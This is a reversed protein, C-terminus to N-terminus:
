REASRGAPERASEREAEADREHRQTGAAAVPLYVTLQTGAGVASRVDIWGGHAQVIAHTIFLGLGLGATDVRGGRHYRRFLNAQEEPPIGEGRDQVRIWATADESGAEVTVPKEAGYKVANSVLNLIVQEIREHDWHGAIARPPIRVEIPTAGHRALDELTGKMDSLIDRLDSAGREIPLAGASIRTADLLSDILSGLKRSRELITVASRRLQDPAIPRGSQILRELLGAQLHLAALPTKLEHSAVSLFEDRLQVAEQTREFLRANEIALAARGAIEELLERDREDFPNGPALRAITLYGIGRGELLIPSALLAHVRDNQLLHHYEPPLMRENDARSLVPLLLSRGTFLFQVEPTTSLRVDRDALLRRMFEEASPSSVYMAALRLRDGDDELMRLVSVDGLLTSVTQTITQLLEPTSRAHEAFARTAQALAELRRAARRESEVLRVRHAADAAILSLETLLQRMKNSFPHFDAFSIALSGFAENEHRLPFAVTSGFAANWDRYPRVSDPTELWLTRNERIAQPVPLPYDLPMNRFRQFAEGSVGTATVINVDSTQKAHLAFVSAACGLQRVVEGTLAEGLEELTTAAAAEATIAQLIGIARSEEAKEEYLRARDLAQAGLSAVSELFERLSERFEQPRFFCFGLVGLLRTGAILPLAVSAASNQYPRYTPHAAYAEVWLAKRLFGAQTLTYPDTLAFEGAMSAAPGTPGRTSVVRLARTDENLTAVTTVDAGIVPLTVRTITDAVEEVTVAAALQAALGALSASREQLQKSATIDEAAVVFGVIEDGSRYPTYRVRLRVPKGAPSTFDIEQDLTEGALAREWFPSFTAVNEPGLVESVHRGVIEERTRGYWAAYSASAHLFTFDRSVYSILLPITDLLGQIDRLPMGFIIGSM